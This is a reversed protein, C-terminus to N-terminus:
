KGGVEVYNRTQLIQLKDRGCYPILILLSVEKKKGGANLGKSICYGYSVPRKFPFLLDISRQIQM